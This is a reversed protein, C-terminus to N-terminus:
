ENGQHHLCCPGRFRQDIEVLSYPAVVWFVAMKTSVVTLVEFGVFLFINGLNIYMHLMAIFWSIVCTLHFVLVVSIFLLSILKLHANSLEPTRYFYPVKFYIIKFNYSNIKQHTQVYVYM